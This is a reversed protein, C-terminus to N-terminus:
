PSTSALMVVAAGVSLFPVLPLTQRLGVRGQRLVIGLSALAALFTGLGFAIIVNAGLIAGMLLALKADGMGFSGSTVLALLACATYAGFSALIWEPIQSPALACHALLFAFAGPLVLGNPVIRRTVDIASLITLLILAGLAFLANAGFGFRALAISCVVLGALAAAIPMGIQRRAAHNRPRLNRHAYRHM